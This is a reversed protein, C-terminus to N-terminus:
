VVERLLNILLICTQDPVGDVMDALVVTVVMPLVVKFMERLSM